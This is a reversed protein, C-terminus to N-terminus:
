VHYIFTSHIGTNEMLYSNTEYQLGLNGRDQCSHFGYTLAKMVPLVWHQCM